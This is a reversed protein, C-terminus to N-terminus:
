QRRADAGCVIDGALQKLHHGADIQNVDRIMATVHGIQNGPLCLECKCRQRFRDLEDFGALQTDERHRARSKRLGQRIDRGQRFKDWDLVIHPVAGARRLARRGVDNLEVNLHHEGGGFRFFPERLQRFAGLASM